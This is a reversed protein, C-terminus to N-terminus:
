HYHYLTEERLASPRFFSVFRRVVEVWPLYGENETDNLVIKKVVGDIKNLLFSGSFDLNLSATLFFVINNTFKEM